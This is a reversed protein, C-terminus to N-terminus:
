PVFLSIVFLTLVLALFFVFPAWAWLSPEAIKAREEPRQWVAENESRM